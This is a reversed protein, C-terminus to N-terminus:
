IEAFEGNELLLVQKGIKYGEEAALEAFCSRRRFEAHSPLIYYPNLLKIFDRMDERGAHGSVHVDSFIRVKRKILRKELMERNAQNIPHPIVRTSFIVSDKNSLKMAFEGKSLRDLM